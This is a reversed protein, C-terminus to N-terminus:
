VLEDDDLGGPYGARVYPEHVYQRLPELGLRNMTGSLSAIIPLAFRFVPSTQMARQRMEARRMSTLTAGGRGGIGGRQRMVLRYAAFALLVAAVGFLGAAVIQVILTM